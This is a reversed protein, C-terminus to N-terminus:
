DDEIKSPSRAPLAKSVLLDIMAPQSPYEELLRGIGQVLKAADARLTEAHTRIGEALITRKLVPRAIGFDLDHLAEIKRALHGLQYRLNNASVGMPLTETSTLLRPVFVMVADADVNFLAHKATTGGYYEVVQRLLEDNHEVAHKLAQLTQAMETRERAYAAKAADRQASNRIRRDIAFAIGAGLFVGLVNAVLDQFFSLDFFVRM